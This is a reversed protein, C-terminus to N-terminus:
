TAKKLAKLMAQSDFCVSVSITKNMTRNIVFKNVIGGEFILIHRTTLHEKSIKPHCHDSREGYDPFRDSEEYQELHKQIKTIQKVLKPYSYSKQLEAWKLLSGYALCPQLVHESVLNIATKGDVLRNLSKAYM